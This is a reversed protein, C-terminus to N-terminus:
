RAPILASVIPNASNMARPRIEDIPIWRSRDNKELWSICAQAHDDFSQFKRSYDVCVRFAQKSREMLPESLSSLSQRYLKRLEGYTITSGPVVANSNWEKPTPARQFDGVFSSWMFGVRGAAAIVWRPPPAPEIQIIKQYELDASEIAQTKKKSWEVVKTSMFRLVSERDGAGTYEPFRIAEFEARKQEAFFFLAEGIATLVAGLRRLQEQDTSGLKEIEKMMEAPRAWAARVIEFEASAKPVTGEQVHIRGLLAHALIKDHLNGQKDVTPMWKEFLGRADKLRGYRQFATAVKTVLSPIEAVQKAGYNKSYLALDENARDLEGLGIRMTIAERLAAPAEESKAFRRVATEIIEAAEAFEAISQYNQALTFAATRGYDTYDLHWQPDLIMKRVAIAKDLKGAKEYAAAARDLAHGAAACGRENDKCAERGRDEWTQMYEEAEREASSDAWAPSIEATLAMLALISSFVRANSM